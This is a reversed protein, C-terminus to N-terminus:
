VREFIILQQPITRLSIAAFLIKGCYYGWVVEAVSELLLALVVFAPRPNYQNLCILGNKM